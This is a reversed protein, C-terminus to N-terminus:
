APLATIQAVPVVNCRPKHFAWDARQCGASCYYTTKCSGCILLKPAISSGIFPRVCAPNYCARPFYDADFIAGVKRHKMQDRIAAALGGLKPHADIEAPTMLKMQELNRDHVQGVTLPSLGGRAAAIARCRELVADPTKFVVYVFLADSPELYERRYLPHLRLHFQMICAVCRCNRHGSTGATVAVFHVPSGTVASGKIMNTGGNKTYLIISQGDGSVHIDRYRGTPVPECYEAILDPIANPIQGPPSRAAHEIRQFASVILSLLASATVDPTFTPPTQTQYAGRALGLADLLFTENPNDDRIRTYTDMKSKM